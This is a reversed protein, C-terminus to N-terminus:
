WANAASHQAALLANVSLAHLQRLSAACGFSPDRGVILITTPLQYMDRPGNQRAHELHYSWLPSLAALRGIGRIPGRLQSSTSAKRSRCSPAPPCELWPRRVHATQSALKKHMSAAPPSDPRRALKAVQQSLLKRRRGSHQSRYLSRAKGVLTLTLQRRLWQKRASSPLHM